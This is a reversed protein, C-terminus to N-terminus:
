IYNDWILRLSRHTFFVYPLNDMTSFHAYLNSSDFFTWLTFHGYSYFTWLFQIDMCYINSRFIAMYKFYKFKSARRENFARNKRVFKWPGVNIGQGIYIKPELTFPIASPRFIWFFHTFIHNAYDAWNILSAWSFLKMRSYSNRHTKDFDLFHVRSLIFPLPHWLYLKTSCHARLVYPDFVGKM